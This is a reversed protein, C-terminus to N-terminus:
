NPARLAWDPTNYMNYPNARQIANTSGANYIQGNGAYIEVHRAYAGAQTPAYFLVDGPELKSVDDIRVWGKAILAEAVGRTNHSGENPAFIGAEQLVWTVYTACCTVKNNKSNEFNLALNSGDDSYTYRNDEMYKHVKRASEIISGGSASSSPVVIENGAGDTYKGTSFLVWQANNRTRYQPNEALGPCYQRISEDPRCGCRKFADLFNDIKAGEDGWQYMCSVLADIQSEELTIGKSEAKQKVVDRKEQILEEEIQDVIEVDIEAGREFDKLDSESIGKDAFKELHNWSNGGSYYCVGFGFNRNRNRFKEDLDDNPDFDPQAKYHQKDESIYLYIYPDSNYDTITGNIYGRMAGNEFQRLFERGASGTGGSLTSFTNTNFTVFNFTTVGYDNGSYKYMIYKMTNVMPRTHENSELLEFLMDAGNELLEGVGATGKYLDPYRVVIGEDAKSKFVMDNKYTGDANLYKGDENSLLSLFRETGDTYTSTGPVFTTETVKKYVSRNKCTRALKIENWTYDSRNTEGSNIREKEPKILYNFISNVYRPNCDVESEIDGYEMYHTGDIRCYETAYNEKTHTETEIEENTNLNRIESENSIEDLEGDENETFLTTESTTSNGTVTETGYWVNVKKIGIEYRSEEIKTTKKTQEKAVDDYTLDEYTRDILRERLEELDGEVGRYTGVPIIELYYTGGINKLYGCNDENVPPWYYVGDGAKKKIIPMWANVQNVIEQKYLKIYEHEPQLDEYTGNDNRRRENLLLPEGNLAGSASNRDRLWNTHVKWKGSEYIQNIKEMTDYDNIYDQPKPVNDLLLKLWDKIYYNERNIGEANPYDRLIDEGKVINDAPIPNSDIWRGGLINDDDTYSFYINSISTDRQGNVTTKLDYKEDTIDETTNILEYLQLDISEDDLMAIVADIFDRSGSIEMLDVFFEVPTTYKTINTQYDLAVLEGTETSSEIKKNVLQNNPETYENNFYKTTETNTTKTFAYTWIKGGDFAYSNKLAEKVSNQYEQPHNLFEHEYIEELGEKTFCHMNDTTQENQEDEVSIPAHINIIGNAKLYFHGVELGNDNNNNNNNNNNNFLEGWNFTVVNWFNEGLDMASDVFSSAVCEGYDFTNYVVEYPCSAFVIKKMEELRDGVTFTTETSSYAKILNLGRQGAEEGDLEMYIETDTLYCTRYYSLLLKKLTFDDLGAAEVDIAQELQEKMDQFQSQNIIVKPTFRQNRYAEIDFNEINFWGAVDNWITAAGQRIAGLPDRFFNIIAIVIDKIINIIADIVAFFISAILVVIIIPTLISTLLSKKSKNKKKKKEEAM